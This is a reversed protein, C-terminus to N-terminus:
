FLESHSGIRALYLRQEDTRYILLVDPKIHCERYGNYNGSLLHDRYKEPLKKGRRLMDVVEDFEDIVAQKHLFKKLDKKFRINPKPNLVPNLGWIKGSITWLRINSEVVKM